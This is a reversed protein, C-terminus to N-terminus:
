SHLHVWVLEKTGYNARERIPPVQGTPLLGEGQFIWSQLSASGNREQVPETDPMRNQRYFFGWHPLHYKHQCLLSAAQPSTAKNLACIGTSLVRGTWIEQDRPPKLTQLWPNMGTGLSAWATHRPTPYSLGTDASWAAGRISASGPSQPQQTSNKQFVARCTPAELWRCRAKLGLASRQTKKQEQSLTDWFVEPLLKSKAACVM